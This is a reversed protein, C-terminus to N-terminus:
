RCLRVKLIRLILVAIGTAWGALSSFKFKGSCGLLSPACSIDRQERVHFLVRICCSATAWKTSSALLAPWVIDSSATTSHVQQIKRPLEIAHGEAKGFLRSSHFAIQQDVTSTLPNSPFSQRCEEM